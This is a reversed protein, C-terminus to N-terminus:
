RNADVARQFAETCDTYSIDGSCPEPHRRVEYGLSSLLEHLETGLFEVAEQGEGLIESRIHEYEAVRRALGYHTTTDVLEKARKDLEFNNM